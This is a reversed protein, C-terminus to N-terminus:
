GKYGVLAYDIERGGDGDLFGLYYSAVVVSKLDSPDLLEGFLYSGRLKNIIKQYEEETIGIIQEM